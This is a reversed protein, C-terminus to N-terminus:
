VVRLSIYNKGQQEEVGRNNKLIDNREIAEPGNKPPSLICIRKLFTFIFSSVIYEM